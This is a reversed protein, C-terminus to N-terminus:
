EDYLADVPKISAAKRAPIYGAILGAVVLLVVASVAVGFDATPNYFFRNVDPNSQAINVLIMNILNLVGMGFLLGFFGAIATIFLSESLVLRIVSWPSAGIAKRIGIEKTREKVLIIMINSVGAIGAIITMVGIIWIFMRIGAFVGQIQSFSELTNFIFLANDDSDAFRHKRALMTRIKAEIQKNEEVLSSTTTLAINAIKNDGSFVGQGTSIPLFAKRSEPNGYDEFIGVVQFIVRGAKVYKGLPEEDKFLIEAIPTSLTIVKRREKIDIDNIFRGKKLDLKEIGMYSPMIFTLTFIGYENKYSLPASGRMYMRGSINGVGDLEKKLYEYDENTFQIRRGIGMGEYAESTEGSSIWIANTSIGRFNNEIGQQLGKGSGLLLLLMFIGWAVSFGTMIVRLKNQKLTTFIEEFYDIM